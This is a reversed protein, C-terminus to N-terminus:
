LRHRQYPAPTFVAVDFGLVVLQGFGKAESLNVISLQYNVISQKPLAISESTNSLETSSLDASGTRTHLYDGM